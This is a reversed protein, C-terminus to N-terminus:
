NAPFADWDSEKVIHYKQVQFVPALRSPDADIPASKIFRAPSSLLALVLDVNMTKRRDPNCDPLKTGVPIILVNRRDEISGLIHRNLIM